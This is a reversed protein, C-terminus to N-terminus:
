SPFVFVQSAQLTNTDAVCEFRTFGEYAGFGNKANVEGTVKWTTGTGETLTTDRYQTSSPDRFQRSVADTCVKEAIARVDRATSSAPSEVAAPTSDDSDIFRLSVVVIVGALVAGIVVVAAVGLWQKM